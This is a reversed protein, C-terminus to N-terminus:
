SRGRCKLRLINFVTYLFIAFNIAINLLVLAIIAYGLEKKTVGDIQTDDTIIGLCLYYAFLITCENMLEIWNDRSLEFPKVLIIYILLALSLSLQLM